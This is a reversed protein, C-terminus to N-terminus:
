KRTTGREIISTKLEYLTQEQEEGEILKILLRSAMAGM